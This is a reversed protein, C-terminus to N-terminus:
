RWGGRCERPLASAPSEAPDLPRPSRWARDRGEAMAVRRGVEGCWRTGAPFHKWRRKRWRYEGGHECPGAWEHVQKRARQPICEYVLGISKFKFLSGWATRRATSAMCSLFADAMVTSSRLPMPEKVSYKTTHVPKLVGCTCAM